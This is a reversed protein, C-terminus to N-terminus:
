RSCGAFLNMVRAINPDNKPNQLKAVLNTWEAEFQDYFTVCFLFRGDKRGPLSSGPDTWIEEEEMLLKAAHGGAAAHDGAWEALIMEGLSFFPYGLSLVYGTQHKLFHSMAAFARRLLDLHQQDDHIWDTLLNHALHNEGGDDGLGRSIRILGVASTFRRFALFSSPNRASDSKGWRTLNIAESLYTEIKTPIGGTLRIGELVKIYRLVGPDNPVNCQIDDETVRSRTFEFLAMLDPHMKAPPTLM